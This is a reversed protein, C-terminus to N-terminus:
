GIIYVRLVVIFAMKITATTLQVVVKCDVVIQTKNHNSSVM